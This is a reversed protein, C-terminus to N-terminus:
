KTHTPIRIKDGLKKKNLIMSYLDSITLVKTVHMDYAAVPTM